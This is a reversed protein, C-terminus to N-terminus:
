LIILLNILTPSKESRINTHITIYLLLEWNCNKKLCLIFKYLMRFHIVCIGYRYTEIVDSYSVHITYVVCVFFCSIHAYRHKPIVQFPRNHQTHGSPKICEWREVRWLQIKMTIEFNIGHLINTKRLSCKLQKSASHCRIHM